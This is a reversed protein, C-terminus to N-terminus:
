DNVSQSFQACFVYVIYLICYVSVSAFAPMLTDKTHMKDINKHLKRKMEPKENGLVCCKDWEEMENSSTLTKKATTM